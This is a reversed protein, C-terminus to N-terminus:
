HQYSHIGRLRLYIYVIFSYVGCCCCDVIRAVASSLNKRTHPIVGFWAFLYNDFVFSVQIPFNITVAMAAAAKPVGHQLFVIAALWLAIQDRESGV